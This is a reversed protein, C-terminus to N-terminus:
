PNEAKEGFPFYPLVSQMFDARTRAESLKCIKYPKLSM